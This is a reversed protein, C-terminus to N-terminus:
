QGIPLQPGEGIVDDLRVALARRAIDCLLDARHRDGAVDLADRCLPVDGRANM